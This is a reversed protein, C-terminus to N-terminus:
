KEFKKFFKNVKGIDIDKAPNASDNKKKTQSQNSSISKQNNIQEISRDVFWKRIQIPM